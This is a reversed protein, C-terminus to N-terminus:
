DLHKISLELFIQNKYAWLPLVYIWKILFLRRHIHMSGFVEKFYMTELCLTPIQFSKSCWVLVVATHQLRYLSLLLASLSSKLYRYHSNNNCKSQNYLRNIYTFWSKWVRDRETHRQICPLNIFPFQHVSRIFRPIKNM